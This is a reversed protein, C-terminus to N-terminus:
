AKVSDFVLNLREDGDRIDVMGSDWVSQVFPSDFLKKPHYNVATGNIMPVEEQSADFVFDDGYISKYRLVQDRYVIERRQETMAISAILDPIFYSCYLPFILMTPYDKFKSSSM